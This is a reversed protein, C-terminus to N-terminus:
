GAAVAGLGSRPGPAPHTDSTWPTSRSTPALLDACEHWVRRAVRLTTDDGDVLRMMGLSELYRLMPVTEAEFVALRQHVVAIDDDSRGREILRTLAVAPPVTIEIARHPAITPHSTVAVAQEVTRPFGDLVYGDGSLCSEVIAIMLVTPILEGSRVVSEVARGLSTAAAIERRLLDGTSFYQVGLRKALRIGQTGKGAGPRGVLLVRPPLTEGLVSGDPRDSPQKRDANM